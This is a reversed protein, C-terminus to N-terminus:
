RNGVLVSAAVFAESTSLSEGWLNHLRIGTALRFRAAVPGSFGAILTMNDVHTAWRGVHSGLSRLVSECGAPACALVGRDSLEGLGIGLLPGIRKARGFYLLEAGIVVRSRSTETVDIRSQDRATSDGALIVTQDRPRSYRFDVLPLRAARVAIEVKPSVHWGAHLGLMAGTQDGCFGSSDGTCGHSISGGLEFVQAGATVPLSLVLLGAAGLTRIM